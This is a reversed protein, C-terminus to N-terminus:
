GSIGGLLWVVHVAFLWCFFFGSVLRGVSNLCSLL